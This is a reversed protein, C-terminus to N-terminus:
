VGSAEHPECPRLIGFRTRTHDWRVAGSGAVGRHSSGPHLPTGTQTGTRQINNNNNNSSHIIPTITINDLHILAGKRPHQGFLNNTWDMQCHQGFLTCTSHGQNERAMSYQQGFPDNSSSSNGNLIVPHHQRNNLRIAMLPWQWVLGLRQNMCNSCCESLMQEARDQDNQQLM